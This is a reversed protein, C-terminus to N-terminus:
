EFNRRDDRAKGIGWAASIPGAGHEARMVILDILLQESERRGLEIFQLRGAHHLGSLAHGLNYDDTGACRSDRGCRIEMLMADVHLDEFCRGDHTPACAGVMVEAKRDIETRM